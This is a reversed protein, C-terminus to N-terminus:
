LLKAVRATISTQTDPIFPSSTWVFSRATEGSVRTMMLVASSWSETCLAANEVPVDVMKRSAEPQDDVSISSHDIRIRSGIAIYIPTFMILGCRHRVEHFEVRSYPHM